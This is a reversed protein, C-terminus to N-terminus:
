IRVEKGQSDAWHNNHFLLPNDHENKSIWLDYLLEKLIDVTMKVESTLEKASRLSGPQVGLLWTKISRTEAVWKALLGLSIKHTSIQPFRDIIEEANMFIVSGAAGGFHVADLFILHDIEQEAFSGIFREPTTGADIIMHAKGAKGTKNLHRAIAESLASGLGDDGYERNGLGMLCVKGKFCQHLEKQLDWM